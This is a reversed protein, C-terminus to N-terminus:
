GLISACLSTTWFRPSNAESIRRLLKDATIEETMEDKSLELFDFIPDFNPNTRFHERLDMFWKVRERQKDHSYKWYFTFIAWLAAVITGLTLADRGFGYLWSSEGHARAIDSASSQLIQLM